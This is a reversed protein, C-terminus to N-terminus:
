KKTLLSIQYSAWADKWSENNTKRDMNVQLNSFGYFICIFIIICLQHIFMLVLLILVIYLLVVGGLWPCLCLSKAKTISLRLGVCHHYFLSQKGFIKLRLLM